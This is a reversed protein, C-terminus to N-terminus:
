QPNPEPDPISGARALFEFDCGENAQTVQESFLVGYGRGFRPPPPQWAAQCRALEAEDVELRLVREAVNLTIPDGTRVLALPGGM